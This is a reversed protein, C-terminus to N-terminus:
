GSYRDVFSTLARASRGPTELMPLHGVGRFVHIEAHPTASNFWEVCRTPTIVDRDGWQVQLPPSEPNLHRAPALGDAVMDRFIHQLADTRGLLDPGLLGAMAMGSVTQKGNGVSNFMRYVGKWDRPILIDDRDSKVPRHIDADAQEPIGASNMLTLSRPALGPRHALVAAIAGGMSSGVLHVNDTDRTALWEGLRRAQSEYRYCDDPRYDSEGFGPLDPALIHWHRPLKQLWLGWNEKMAAFGHILVVTPHGPGPRGRELFVMNHGDVRAERRRANLLFRQGTRAAPWLNPTPIRM